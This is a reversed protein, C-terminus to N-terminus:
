HEQQREAGGVDLLLLLSTQKDGVSAGLPGGAECWGIGYSILRGKVPDWRGPGKEGVGWIM